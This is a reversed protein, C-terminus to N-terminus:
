DRALREELAVFKRQLKPKRLFRVLEAPRVEYVVDIFGRSRRYVESEFGRMETMYIALATEEIVYQRQYNMYIADITGLEGRFRSIMDGVCTDVYSQLSFDSAVLNKLFELLELFRHDDEILTWTALTAKQYNWLGVADLAARLQAIQTKINANIRTDDTMGRIKYSLYRLRDCIVIMSSQSEAVFEDV